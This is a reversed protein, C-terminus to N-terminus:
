IADGTDIPGVIRKIPRWKGGSSKIYIKDIEIVDEPLTYYRKDAVLDIYIRKSKNLVNPFESTVAENVLEIMKRLTIDPFNERVRSFMMGVTM